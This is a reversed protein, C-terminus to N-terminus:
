DPRKVGALISKIMMATTVETRRSFTVFVYLTPFIYLEPFVLVLGFKLCAVM